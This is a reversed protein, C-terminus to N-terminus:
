QVTHDAAEKQSHGEHVRVESPRPDRGRGSRAAEEDGDSREAVDAASGPSSIACKCNDGGRNPPM